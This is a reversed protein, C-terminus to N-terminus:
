DEGGPPVSRPWELLGGFVVVFGVVLLVVTAFGIYALIQIGIPVYCMPMPEVGPEPGCSTLLMLATVLFLFCKKM